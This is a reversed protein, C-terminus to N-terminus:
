RHARGVDDACEHCEVELTAHTIGFREALMAKLEAARRQADHLRMEGGLVVHASLAPEESGLSWVHLHHVTEVGPASALASRVEALDVGMPVAELLVRATDRLLRWAAAVVLVVILLSAAPDLWAVDFALNVLAVAVVAGSGFADAVLHWLAGRLNVDRHAERALVWASVANVMLGAAGVVLVGGADISHPDDFRRFAEVLVAGAGALLLVGNFQAALVETRAFGYTHRDTAPRQALVVAAYAVTLALVDSVMHAADALLALSGFALGGVVEVVLFSANAALAILLPRQKSSREIM